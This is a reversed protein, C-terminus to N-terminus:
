KRRRLTARRSKPLGGRASSCAKRSIFFRLTSARV